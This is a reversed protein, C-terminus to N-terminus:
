LNLKKFVSTPLHIIGMMVYKWYWPTYLVDRKKKIANVIDEAIVEPKAVLIAPLDMGETM